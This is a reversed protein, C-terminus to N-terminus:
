WIKTLESVASNKVYLDSDIGIGNAECLIEPFIEKLTKNKGVVLYKRFPKWMSTSKHLFLAHTNATNGKGRTVARQNTEWFQTERVLCSELLIIHWSINSALLMM